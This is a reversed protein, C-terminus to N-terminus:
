PLGILPRGQSGMSKQYGPFFWMREKRDSQWVTLLRTEAVRRFAGQLLLYHSQVVHLFLSFLSLVSTNRETRLELERSGPKQLENKFETLM